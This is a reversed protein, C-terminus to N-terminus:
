TKCGKEYLWKQLSSFINKIGYTYGKQLGQICLHVHWLVSCEFKLLFYYM